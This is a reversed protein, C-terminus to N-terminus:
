YYDTSLLAPIKSDPETIDCTYIKLSSNKKQKLTV